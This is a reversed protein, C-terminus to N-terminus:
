TKSIIPIYFLNKNRINHKNIKFYINALPSSDNFNNNLLNIIFKMYQFHISHKLILFISFIINMALTLPEIFIANLGIYRIFKNQVKEIQDSFPRHHINEMYYFCIQPRIISPFLCKSAFPDDFYSCNRQVM